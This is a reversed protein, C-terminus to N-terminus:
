HKRDTSPLSLTHFVSPPFHAVACSCSDTAGDFCVCVTREAWVSTRRREPLSVSIFGSSTVDYRAPADTLLLVHLREVYRICPQPWLFCHSSFHLSGSLPPVADDRQSLSFSLLLLPPPPLFCSLLPSSFLSGPSVPSSLRPTGLQRAPEQSLTTTTRPPDGHAAGAQQAGSGDALGPESLDLEGQLGAAPLGGGGPAAASSGLISGASRVGRRLLLGRCADPHAGAPAAARRRDVPRVSRLPLRRPSAAAAAAASLLLLLLTFRGMVWLAISAEQM